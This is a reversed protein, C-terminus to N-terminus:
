PSTAFWNDPSDAGVEAIWVQSSPKEDGEVTPGRQACWMLLSGDANFVPLIDAGSAHTVRRRPLKAPDTEGRMAPGVHIAFLEYNHHGVESTGYVLFEGSPHWFPAWDVHRNNTIQIEREVGTIAGKDDYALKAIYLQLLDNLARDSRYCIWQDDPSFFPGGDYGDADILVRHKRTADDYVWIDADQRDQTLEERVHAYLVFRGSSSWSCEADYQPRPPQFIPLPTTPVNAAPSAIESVVTAVVDMEKPFQWVYKRSGVQFGSEEDREPPALTSGYLLVGDLTPHFWGCTNASGEPSIRIPDEAGTIKGDGDRILKAVYMSYFPDPEGGADPVPVAQFVIWNSDPSFYAEGARTFDDRSTLQVHNTLLSSEAGAWEPQALAPSTAVALVCVARATSRM